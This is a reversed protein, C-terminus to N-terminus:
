SFINQASSFLILWSCGRDRLGGGGGGSGSGLM